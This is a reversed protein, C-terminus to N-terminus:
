AVVAGYFPRYDVVAGGYVHRIKYTLKDNSFASGVTPADQLFLEPEERGNWFGIEITPQLRPDGVLFWNNADTWYEVVITTLGFTKVFNLTNNASAVERDTATLEYASKELDIPVVLFRPRIALRKSNSMDAQKLMAVRGATLTTADLAASGLNSHTGHFLAVSDYITPNTALFDFSFEHLTQAAARALRVPIQRMAGLDDNAITELTLDETGGRKTIAYTAEEDGPSTLATYPGAEAVAPLNGYGGMRVRRQTRFDSTPVVNVIQRWSQLDPLNYVDLMRRTISDGMVQAFTTSDISETLRSETLRGSLESDGTIQVYISRISDRSTGALVNYIGEVLQDRSDRMGTVGSGAAAGSDTVAAPNLARLYDVEAEALARVREAGLAQGASQAEALAAARIRERVLAPLNPRTAIEAEVLARTREPALAAEVMRAVTADVAAESLGAAPVPAAAPAPAAPAAAPTPAFEGRDIAEALDTRNARLDSPTITGAVILRIAEALTLNEWDMHSDEVSAVLRVAMGGAAANIVPDVSDIRDIRVVDAIPRGGEVARALPGDGFISFTILDPKGGDLGKRLTEALGEDTAVFTAVVGEAIEGNPLVVDTEYRPNTWWGVLSKVGRKSRDHDPGESAFARAGEFLPVAAQLVEPRYRRGNLSTGPRIVLVDFRPAGSAAEALRLVVADDLPGSVVRETSATRHDIVPPQGTAEVVEYTVRREVKTRAGITATGDEAISYPVRYYAGGEEIIAESDYVEVVWAGDPAPSVDGASAPRIATNIATTIQEFSRAEEIQESEILRTLRPAGEM